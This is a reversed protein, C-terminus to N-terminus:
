ILPQGLIPGAGLLVTIGAGNFICTRFSTDIILAMTKICDDESGGAKGLAVVPAFIPPVVM